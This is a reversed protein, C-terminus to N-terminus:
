NTTRGWNQSQCANFLCGEVKLTNPGVVSINGKYTNGDDANYIPGSWKNPGDPQMGPFIALGMIPRSRKSADPNQKDLSPKGTQPDLPKALWVITGCYANGCKTVQIKADKEDTLWIGSPDAARAPASVLITLLAAGAAASAISKM